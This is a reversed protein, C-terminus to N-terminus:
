FGTLFQFAFTEVSVRYGEQVENLIFYFEDGYFVLNLTFLPSDKWLLLDAM